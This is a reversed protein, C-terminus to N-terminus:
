LLILLHAEVTGSYALKQRQKGTAAAALVGCATRQLAANSRHIHLARIAADMGRPDLTHHQVEM